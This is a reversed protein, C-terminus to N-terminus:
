TTARRHGIVADLEARLAASEKRECELAYLAADREAVLRRERGEDWHKGCATCRVLTGPLPNDDRDVAVVPCLGCTPCMIETM